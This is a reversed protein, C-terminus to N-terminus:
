RLSFVILRENELRCAHNARIHAAFQPYDALWWFAPWAIALTKAGRETRLRELEAIAHTDDEPLGWYEGDKELFQLVFRGAIEAGVAWRAEDVLIITDGAPVLAVIEDVARRVQHFYSNREWNQRNVPEGMRLAHDELMSWQQEFSRIGARVREDLPMHKYNNRPHIRYFGQPTTLSAITGFAPATGYLYGDAGIRHEPEPMPLAIELFNRAWANGSTPPSLSTAPGQRLTFERLDGHPLPEAPIIQGSAELDEGARWLPWHVKAVGPTFQKMAQEIATPLLVDDADLFVVVEGRCAAFGANFASAQGGNEKLLPFIRDGYSAIVDRSEDTSGDDVVIVELPTYTQALASDIAEAVFRGYNYNNVVISALPPGPESRHAEDDAEVDSM